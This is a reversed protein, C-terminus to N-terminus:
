EYKIAQVPNILAAKVSQFSITLWAILISILFAYIFIDASLKTTYCYNNLWEKLFYWALPIAIANAIIVLRAFDKSMLIVIASIPAGFTKRIGIEKTRQEAMFSVLGLLGLCSIFIALFAFYKFIEALRSESEYIKEYEKDLFNYEFPFAPNIKSWVDEIYAISAKPDDGGVRVMMTNTYSEPGFGIILPSIEYTMPLFHFDSMVGIINWRTNGHELWKGIPDKMNMTRLMSENIVIGNATDTGIGPDYFRGHSLEMELVEAYDYGAFGFGVLVDNDVDRDQWEFGGANSGMGFPLSNARTVGVISPERMLDTKMAQYTDVVKGEMKIYIVNETNIGLDKKAMFKQQRIIVITAIILIISLTFQFVVLVKRFMASGKTGSNAIRLVKLPNFSSLYIAPYSGALLGTIIGVGLLLALNSPDLLNFTLDSDAMRNFAPLVLIVIIASFLIAIFSLLLSDTLFQVIIKGRGAGVM